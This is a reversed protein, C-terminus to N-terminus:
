MCLSRRYNAVHPGIGGQSRAVTPSVSEVRSPWGLVVDRAKSDEDTGEPAPPLALGGDERWRVLCCCLDGEMTVRTGFLSRSPGPDGEGGSHLCCLTLM